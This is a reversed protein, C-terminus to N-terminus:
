WSKGDWTCVLVLKTMDPNLMIVGCVPIGSRYVGYETFLEDCKNQVKSLLPCHSFIAKAFSKLYKYHPLINPYKDAKFDEYFWWAQEIQFFLRDSKQLESEPLNYLFRTEVDNLCSELTINEDM